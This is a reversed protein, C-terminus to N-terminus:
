FGKHAEYKAEPYQMEIIKEMDNMVIEIRHYPYMIRKTFFLVDTLINAFERNNLLDSPSSEFPSPFRVLDGTRRDTEVTTRDIHKNLFPRLELNIYSVQMEEFQKLKEQELVMLKFKRRLEESSILKIEGTNILAVYETTPTGSLWLYTLKHVNAEIEEDSLQIDPNRIADLLHQASSIVEEMAKRGYKIHFRYLSMDEGIREVIKLEKEVKNMNQSCSNLSVNIIILTFIMVTLRFIGSAYHKPTIKGKLQYKNM